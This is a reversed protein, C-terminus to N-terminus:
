LLFQFHFSSHQIQLFTLRCAHKYNETNEQESYLYRTFVTVRPSELAPVSESTWMVRTPLRPSEPRLSSFCLRSSCSLNWGPATLNKNHWTGTTDAPYYCKDLAQRKEHFLDRKPLHPATWKNIWENSQQAPLVKPQGEKCWTIDVEVPVQISFWGLKSTLFFFFLLFFVLWKQETNKRIHTNQCWINQVHLQPSQKSVPQSALLNELYKPAIKLLLPFEPSTVM